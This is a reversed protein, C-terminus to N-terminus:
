LPARRPLSDESGAVSQELGELVFRDHSITFLLKWYARRHICSFLLTHFETWDSLITASPIGPNIRSRTVPFLMSQM